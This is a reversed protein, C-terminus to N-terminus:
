QHGGRLKKIWAVLAYVLTSIAAAVSGMYFMYGLAMGGEGKFGSSFPWLMGYIVGPSGATTLLSLIIGPAPAIRDALTRITAFLVLLAALLPLALILFLPMYDSEGTIGGLVMVALFCLGLSIGIAPMVRRLSKKFLSPKLLGFALVSLPVIGMLLFVHYLFVRHRSTWSRGHRAGHRRLLEVVATQNGAEARDLLTWGASAAPDPHAGSELLRQMARLNSEEYAVALPTRGGADRRDLPMKRDVFFALMEWSREDKGAALKHLVNRGSSDPISPDAGHGLLLEVCGRSRCALSVPTEGRSDSLNVPSGKQLLLALLERNQKMAALHLPTRGDRGAQAPDAGRDLLFRAQALYEPECYASLAPRGERDARNMDVGLELLREALAEWGTGYLSFWRSRRRADVAHPDAGLRLLALAREPAAHLFPTLGDKDRAELSAGRILLPLLTENGALFAPTRGDSDALAPDAGLGILFEVFRRHQAPDRVAKARGDVMTITPPIMSDYRVALHLPTQGNDNAGNVPVGRSALSRILAMRRQLLERFESSDPRLSMKVPRVKFVMPPPLVVEQVAIREGDHEIYRVRRPGPPPPPDPPLIQGPAILAHILSNGAKDRVKLDPIRELNQELFAIEDNRLASFLARADVADRSEDAWSCVGCALALLAATLVTRKM